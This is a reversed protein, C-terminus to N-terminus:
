AILPFDTIVDQAADLATEVVLKEALLALLIEALHPISGSLTGVFNLVPRWSDHRQPPHPAGLVCRAAQVM